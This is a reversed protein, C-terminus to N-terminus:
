RQHRLLYIVTTRDRGIFGAITEHAMGHQARLREAVEKRAKVAWRSTNKMFEERTLSYRLCIQDIITDPPPPPRRGVRSVIRLHKEPAPEPIVRHGGM